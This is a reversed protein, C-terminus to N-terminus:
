QSAVGSRLLASLRTEPNFPKLFAATDYDDTVPLIRVSYGWVPDSIHRHIFNAYRDTRSDFFTGSRVTDMGKAFHIPSPRLYSWPRAKVM